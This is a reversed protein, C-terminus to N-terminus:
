KENKLYIVGMWYFGQLDEYNGKAAVKQAIEAFKSDDITYNTRLIGQNDKQLLVSLEDVIANEDYFKNEVHYYETTTDDDDAEYDAIKDDLVYRDDEVLVKKSASNPINLLPNLILDNDNNTSDVIHWKGDVKVKNWAHPLDGDLYGTVVITELGAEDGLLKFAGAYSACVGVENILVGYPTFSDNFEADVKQFNNKEANELAAHDYEAIEILYQNIAYEKELDTMEKKIIKSTVQKVKKRLEEQKVKMEEASIDYTVLMTNGDMSLQAGKAGLILPNQYIAEMWADFLTEQSRAEPFEKLNIISKADLMNVALYESLSSNATIKDEIVGITEDEDRTKTSETQKKETSKTGRSEETTKTEKEKTQHNESEKTSSAKDTTDESKENSDTKESPTTDEAEEQTFEVDTTGAVNRLQNQREELKRLEEQWTAKFYNEVKAKGSYPTGEVTYPVTVLEVKVAKLDSMDEKEYTGWSETEEKGKSIDYNILKQVLTGDAMTVWRYSPLEGFSPATSKGETESSLSIEERNPIRKALDNLDITNSIASTGDKNVGVVAFKTQFESTKLIPATGEGYKKKNEETRRELESVEFTRFRTLNDPKWTTQETKGNKGESVSGLRDLGNEETYNYEIVYYYAANNLKNWSIEPIGEENLTVKARLMGPIEQNVSFITVKPKDLKEGTELDVFVAMYYEPLNGWDQAEDTQFLSTDSTQFGYDDKELNFNSIGAPKYKPPAIEIETKEENMTYTPQVKQTLNVDQFVNIIETFNKYGLEVPDFGIDLTMIEDRDLYQKETEYDNSEEYKEKVEATLQSLQIQKNESPSEKVQKDNQSQCGSLVLGALLITVVLKKKM